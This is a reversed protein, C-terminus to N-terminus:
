ESLRHLPGTQESNMRSAQSSIWETLVEDAWFRPLDRSIFGLHGGHGTAVLTLNPNSRVERRLFIEFPIMPDDQAQVLLTPVQISALFGLSSQTRYYNAANGFDFARATFRDDFQYITRVQGLGDLPFRGPAAAHRRRYRECLRKVFRQEYLWNSRRGIARVCAHLDIPTSVACVGAILGKAREALEGALKLVVNGGLSYGVLFLPGRGQARFAELLTRLDVTLGSHYLTPTLHETGGCSRMNVRHAVFGAAALALAMSVMYGSQSSGELGHMLLVEGRPVGEPRNEEVLVQTGPEGPYLVQRTPFRSDEAPRKWFNGALTLLHPNRFYPTFPRL